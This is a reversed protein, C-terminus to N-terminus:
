TILYMELTKQKRNNKDRNLKQFIWEKFKEYPMTNSRKYLDPNFFISKSNYKIIIEKEYLFKILKEIDDVVLTQENIFKKVFDMNKAGTKTFKKMQYMTELFILAEYTLDDLEPLNIFVPNTLSKLMNSAIAKVVPIAVSNAIQKYAQTKSVPFKFSDPFGQLRSWERVTLKRLGENNRLRLDDGQKKWINKPLKDKILNREKGMGGCVLANAIGNRSLVEYGFGHGKAKHRAKHKKLGLLYEQSIYYSEDVDKELISEIRVPKNIPRPFEFKIKDKFGVIYIRERNQPLGFDKANLIKYYITYKLNKELIYRIIRFTRGNDHNILNKVNELFFATPKKFDLIKSIYFFLTGRTDEFGKRKGAISFAQCPFGGLLIDFDPIEEINIKTIDGQPNEGFNAEYTQCSFKNIENSFVFKIRDDFAQQFGLRIGGIGAFLDIARFIKLINKNKSKNMETM